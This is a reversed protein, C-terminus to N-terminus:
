GFQDCTVSATGSSLCSDPVTIAEAISQSLSVSYTLDANFTLTGSESISPVTIILGPCSASSASGCASAGIINWTGVVDGGCPAVPSCTGLTSVSNGSCGVVVMVITVSIWERMARRGCPM